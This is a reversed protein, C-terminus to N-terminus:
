KVKIKQNQNKDLIEDFTTIKEEITKESFEKNNTLNYQMLCYSVHDANVCKEMLIKVAEKDENKNKRIYDSATLFVDITKANLVIKLVDLNDQNFAEKFRSISKFLSFDNILEKNGSYDDIIYNVMAKRLEHEMDKFKSYDQRFIDQLNLYEFFGELILPPISPMDDIKNMEYLMEQKDEISFGPYCIINKKVDLCCDTHIEDTFTTEHMISNIAVDNLYKPDTNIIDFLAELRKYKVPTYPKDFKDLARAFYSNDVSTYEEGRSSLENERKTIANKLTIFLKTPDTPKKEYCAEVVFSVIDKDGTDIFEEFEKKESNVIRESLWRLRNINM